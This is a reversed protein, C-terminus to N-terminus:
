LEKQFLKNVDEILAHICRLSYDKHDLYQYPCEGCYFDSCAAVAKMILEKDLM